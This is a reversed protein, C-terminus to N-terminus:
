QQKELLVTIPPNTVMTVAEPFYHEWDRASQRHNYAELHSICTGCTGAACLCLTTILRPMISTDEPINAMSAIQYSTLALTSLGLSMETCSCCCNMLIDKPYDDKARSFIKEDSINGFMRSAILIPMTIHGGERIRLNIPTPLMANLPIITCLPILLLLKM